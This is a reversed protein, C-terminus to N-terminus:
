PEEKDTLVRRITSLSCSFTNKKRRTFGYKFWFYRWIIRQQRQCDGTRRVLPKLRYARAAPKFARKVLAFAVRAQLSASGARPRAAFPSRRLERVFCLLSFALSAM